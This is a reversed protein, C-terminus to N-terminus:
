RYYIKLNSHLGISRLSLHPNTHLQLVAELSVSSLVDEGVKRSKQLFQFILIRIRVTAVVMSIRTRMAVM